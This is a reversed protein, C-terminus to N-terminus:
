RLPYHNFGQKIQKIHEYAENIRQEPIIGAKVQHEILDIIKTPTVMTHEDQNAFLLVDVGANIALPIAKELPYNDLIAKMLMDDSIIVGNFHLHHRLLDTLMKHSLTAPLGSPDLQRNILHATMVFGCTPKDQILKQYPLLEYSKWTKSIDVLGLHSDKESSGHGPFHKFACQINKERLANVFLGAFHTVEAPDASYSRKFTTIIPNTPNVAIDVIPAFDLNFGATKLYQSMKNLEHSLKKQSLKPYLAPSLTPEFGDATQLRDVWGGEYDIAILLPLLPLHQKKQSQTTYAQLQTTLEHIQQKSQINKTLNKGKTATDFAIVGGLHYQDIWKVIDSENSVQSENFGMIIMQGIKYRLPVPATQAQLPPCVTIFFILSTFVHYINKYFFSNLTM